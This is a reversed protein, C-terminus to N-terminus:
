QCRSLDIIGCAFTKKERRGEGRGKTAEGLFMAVEERDFKVTCECLEVEQTYETEQVKRTAVACRQVSKSTPTCEVGNSCQQEAQMDAPLVQQASPSHLVDVLGFDSPEHIEIDEGLSRVLTNRSDSNPLASSWSILDNM